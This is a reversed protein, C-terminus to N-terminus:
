GGGSVRPGGLNMANAAVNETDLLMVALEGPLKSGYRRRLYNGAAKQLNADPDAVLAAFLFVNLENLSWKSPHASVRNSDHAGWNIPVCCIGEVGKRRCLRARRQMERGMIHFNRPGRVCHEFSFECIEDHGGYKGMWPNLPHHLNVDAWTAKYVFATQGGKLMRVFAPIDRKPNFRMNAPRHSEVYEPLWSKDQLEAVGFEARMKLNLWYQQQTEHTGWCRNFLRINKGSRRIGETMADDLHKMMRSFPIDKCRECRHWVQTRTSGENNSYMYGDLDPLARCTEAVKVALAERVEPRSVCVERIDEALGPAKKAYQNGAKCHLRPYAQQFGDPLSPEYAHFIAKMGAKKAARILERIDKRRKAIRGRFPKRFPALKEYEPMFVPPDDLPWKPTKHGISAVVVWNANFRRAYNILELSPGYM